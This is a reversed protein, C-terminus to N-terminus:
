KDAKLKIDRENDWNAKITLKSDLTVAIEPQIRKDYNGTDWIGNNNSDYLIRLEYDGPPFLKDSWQASTIRVSRYIEEAKVFQLVPHVLTDLDSFRLVINGYDTTKKSSFKLTDSRALEADTSDTMSTKEVLLRYATNETWPIKITIEKATSDLTVTSAIKNYLTDTVYIQTPDFTKLPRNTTLVLNTLLDQSNNSLNSSYKFKKDAATPAKSAAQTKRQDKEEAFAYLTVPETSDKIEIVSDAFAFMEIKSNYTKSGDGDRLGYMKYSGESLNTFYFEGKGNLRAIYDPKRKHVVSDDVNRYLMAIFTSDIKGTEALVLKGSAKLSDITNGTSFVYTFDKYPNGENNDRIADGFNIAYTTNPILTDKLKVTVTKLKFDVTPNIKPYPSVLLNTQIDKVDIYEDFTFVIKKQNFNTANQQPVASILVPALTDRPGGTPSGIQACSSGGISIFYFGLAIGISYFLHRIKM